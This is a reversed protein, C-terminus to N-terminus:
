RWTFPFTWQHFSISWMVEILKLCGHTTTFYIHLQRSVFLSYEDVIANDFYVSAKSLFPRVISYVCGYMCMFLVCKCLIEMFILAVEM